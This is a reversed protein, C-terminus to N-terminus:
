VDRSSCKHLRLGNAILLISTELEEIHLDRIWARALNLDPSGRTADASKVAIGELVTHRGGTTTGVTV